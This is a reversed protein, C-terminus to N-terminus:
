VRVDHREHVARGAPALALRDEGRNGAEDTAGRLGHGDGRGDLRCRSPLRNSNDLSIVDCEAEQEVSWGGVVRLAGGRSRSGCAPSKTTEACLGSLRSSSLSRYGARVTTPAM